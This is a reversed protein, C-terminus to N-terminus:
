EGALLRDEYALSYHAQYIVVKSQVSLVKNVYVRESIQTSYSEMLSNKERMKTM